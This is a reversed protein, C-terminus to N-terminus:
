SKFTSCAKYYDSPIGIDIFYNSCLFPNIESFQKKLVTEEFSFAEEPLFIASNNLLYTGGNIFGAGIKGKESFGIIKGSALDVSGYRSVDEINVLAMSINKNSAQHNEAFAQLDLDLFTDGNVILVVSSNCLEMAQRIAGGTGLPAEEISYSIEVGQYSEGIEECFAEAKYSVALIIHSIGQKVLSDMVYHIFPKGSVPVLPKPTDGSVSKLRTGLGGALIIAETLM